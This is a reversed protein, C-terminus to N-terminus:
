MMQDMTRNVKDTVKYAADEVKCAAKNALKRVPNTRPVMMIAVAGAAAGIGMTIALAKMSMKKV